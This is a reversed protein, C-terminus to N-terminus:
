AIKLTAGVVTVRSQLYRGYYRNTLDVSSHRLWRSAETLGDRMAVQCGAWARWEHIAKQSRWGLDRMLDSVRRFVTENRETESGPIWHASPDLLAAQARVLDVCPVGLWENTITIRPRITGNKTEGPIEVVLRGDSMVIDSARIRAIEGKRLGAAVALLVALFAGPDEAARDRLTRLTTAVLTDDAPRYEPAALRGWPAAACFEDVCPPLTWGHQRSLEARIFAGFASRAQHHMSRGSRLIQAVREASAQEEDGQTDLYARYAHVTAASVATLPLGNPDPRVSGETHACRLITRVANAVSAASATRSAAAFATLYEGVTLIRGATTSARGRAETLWAQVADLVDGEATGADTCAHLMRDLWRRPAQGARRGELALRAREILVSEAEFAEGILVWQGSVRLYWPKTAAEGPALTGSRLAHQVRASKVMTYVRGSRELRFTLTPLKM